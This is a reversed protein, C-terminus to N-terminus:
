YISSINKYANYIPKTPKEASIFEANASIAASLHLADMASLGYQCALNIAPQIL